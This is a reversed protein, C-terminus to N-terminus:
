QTDIDAKVPAPMGDDLLTLVSTDEINYYRGNVYINAGQMDSTRILVFENRETDTWEFSIVTNVEEASMLKDPDFDVPEYNAALFKEYWSFLEPINSRRTIVGSYHGTQAGIAFKMKSCNVNLSDTIYYSHDDGLPPHGFVVSVNGGSYPWLETNGNGDTWELYWIDNGLAYEFYVKGKLEVGRTNFQEVRYILDAYADSKDFDLLVSVGSPLFAAQQNLYGDDGTYTKLMDNILEYIAKAHINNDTISESVKPEDRETIGEPVRGFETREVGEAPFQGVAGTDPDKWQVFTLTYKEPDIRFFVEGSEPLKATGDTYKRFYEQAEESFYEPDPTRALLDACKKAPSALDTTFEGTAVKSLRGDVIHMALNANILKYVSEAKLDAATDSVQISDATGAAAPTKDRTLSYILAGGGVTLALAAAVLGAGGRKLKIAGRDTDPAPATHPIMGNINTEKMTNGGNLEDLSIMKLMDNIKRM